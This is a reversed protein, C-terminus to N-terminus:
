KRRRKKKFSRKENSRNPSSFSRSPNEGSFKLAFTMRGKLLDADRLTVTLHDGYGFVVRTRRGELRTPHERFIFYDNGLTNMPVLGSAGLDPITVFLGSHTVGTVYVEFTEGIKPELYATMYRDKSDREASAARREAISIHEGWEAFTGESVQPLADDGIHGLTRLLGRHVLLDAYRRIPSTFHAYHTLSLGFHGINEPTYIAQSQCRLVLENVIAEYPQGQVTQLLRSFDQPKVLVGTFKVGTLKLLRVLEQVKEDQPLDHVRYMCSIKAAELTEAAAVNALIMFEEILRHSDLRDRRVIAKVMGQEDLHVYHEAVEIELTGRTERQKKLSEYAGYLPTLLNKIDSSEPTEYIRQVDEYILRAHSNMLGRFFQHRLKNGDKDIWINVGMVARDENPNLSCVGNSLAEPLMPIVRDPFYVSTGREFADKDLPMGPRVYYSVDAIAVMLHWGGPNKPDTDPEAWIADDFDRSDRGDITVLPIKRVDVRDGLPPVVVHDVNHLAEPSFEMPVDYSYAAILSVDNQHCLIKGVKVMPPSRSIISAEFVEGWQEAPIEKINDVVYSDRDKRQTSVFRYGEITNTIVGIVRESPEEVIRIAVAPYVGDKPLGIKAMIYMGEELVGGVQSGDIVVPTTVELQAFKGKLKKGPGVQTIRVVTMKPIKEEQQPRRPATRANYSKSSPKTVPKSPFKAPNSSTTDSPPEYVGEQQLQDLLAKVAKRDRIRTINFIDAIKNKGLKASKNKEIYAKLEEKSPINGM